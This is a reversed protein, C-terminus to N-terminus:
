PHGLSKLHLVWQLLHVDKALIQHNKQFLQSHKPEM